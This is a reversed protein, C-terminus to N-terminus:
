CLLRRPFNRSLPCCLSFVVRRAMCCVQWLRKREATTVSPLRCYFLADGWRRRLADVLTDVDRSVRAYDDPRSDLELGIQVLVVRSAWDRNESLFRDFALLKLPIGRLAELPDLGVIVQRTRRRGDAGGGLVVSRFKEMSGFIRCILEDDMPASPPQSAASDLCLNTTSAGASNTERTHVVSADATPSDAASLTDNAGGSVVSGAKEAEAEDEGDGDDDSGFYHSSESLFSTGPGPQGSSQRSALVVSGHPVLNPVALEQLARVPVGGHCCTVWVKRRNNLIQIQGGQECTYDVGLMRKCCTLFHRAYEFLHFGIHSASLM